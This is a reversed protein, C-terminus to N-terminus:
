HDLHIGKAELLNRYVRDISDVMVRADFQGSIMKRGERGMRGALERDRLLRKLAAALERVNGPEVLCGNRDDEVLDPIGGVRTAVVPKEMAMAELVVRGMGEFLSPLVAVDFASIIGSVEAQFGTFIVDDQLGRERVLRQLSPRLYGEGVIVLKPSGIEGKLSSFAEILISHGKGEWLKSVIGVVADDPGIGWRRRAERRGEEGVPQFRDLEIGSYIREAQGKGERIIREGLAWALLPGSIFIMKDCWRAALRELDRFLIRRWLPEQGHFAFGHVTHVIVPIGCIRGALRGLFGAKSNHTHLVHCPNASLFRILNWLALLDDVPQLPQVLHPFLRVEMGEQRVLDILPGGPACALEVRYVRKDLGKMTLFTNIGSGSIVPLTHIHLVRIM